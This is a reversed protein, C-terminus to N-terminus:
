GTDVIEAKLVSALEVKATKAEGAAKYASPPVSIM